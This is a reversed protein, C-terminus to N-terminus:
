VGYWEPIVRSSNSAVEYVGYDNSARLLVRQKSSLMSEDVGNFRSTAQACNSRSKASVIDIGEHQCIAELFETMSNVPLCISAITKDVAAAMSACGKRRSVSNIIPLYANSYKALPLLSDKGFALEEFNWTMVQSHIARDLPRGWELDARSYREVHKLHSLYRDLPHRVVLLPRFRDSRLICRDHYPNHIYVIPHVRDRRRIERTFMASRIWNHVRTGSFSIAASLKRDAEEEDGKAAELFFRRLGIPADCVRDM